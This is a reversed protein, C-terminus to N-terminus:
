STIPSLCKISFPQIFHVWVIFKYIKTHLSSHTWLLTNVKYHLCSHPVCPIKLVAAVNLFFTCIPNGTCNISTHTAFCLLLMFIFWQLFQFLLLCIHHVFFHLYFTNWSTKTLLPSSGCHLALACNVLSLSVSNVEINFLDLYFGLAIEWDPSYM